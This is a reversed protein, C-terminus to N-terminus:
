IRGGKSEDGSMAASSKKIEDTPTDAHCMVVPPRKSLELRPFGPDCAGLGAHHMAFAIWEANQVIRAEPDDIGGHGEGEFVHLLFPGGADPHSQLSAAFKRGHWAPCRPDLDGAVVFVPPYERGPAVAHCPSTAIIRKVDAHDRVDGHETNDKLYGSLFSAVLDLNPVKPIVAAWLDPRQTAAVGAMLGGNSNGTLALQDATTDGHRILDEAVAYLDDYCNQKRSGRGDIWWERGLESGGRIHAHVFVGGAAVFSAMAGPYEPMLARNYGGYAFLLAPRAPLGMARVLHYPVRTGDKSVAWRDVIETGSISIRPSRLVDVKRMALSAKYYGWSSSLSSFGFVYYDDQRRSRLNIFPYIGEALAGRGPLELEKAMGGDADFVRVASCTDRLESVVFRGGRCDVNRLVADGEPVLERWGSPDNPAPASLPISVVRGKHAGVDTVAVLADGLVQGALSGDLEQVFPRWSESPNGSNMIAVPIPNTLGQYAVSWDSDPYTFVGRYHRQPVWPIEQRVTSVAPHRMHLYVSQEFDTAAGEIASVFFGFSNRLWQAGGTWSDMLVLGPCDAHVVGSGVDILVLRNNESGDECVGVALSAGDPSPSIWALFAGDGGLSRADVVLSAQAHFPEVGTWVCANEAWFWRGGAFQPFISPKPDDLTRALTLAAPYTPLESAYERALSSQARQWATVEETNAELWQFPDSLVHGTLRQVADTKRTAPYSVENAMM